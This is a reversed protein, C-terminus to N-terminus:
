PFHVVRPNLWVGRSTMADAVDIAVQIHFIVGETEQAGGLDLDIETWGGSMLVLPQPDLILQGSMVSEGYIKGVITDKVFAEPPFLLTARFRPKVADALFMTYVGDVFSAPGQAPFVSIGSIKKAQFLLTTQSVSTPPAPLLQCAYTKSIDSWAIEKCLEYLDYLVTEQEPDGTSSGSSGSSGSTDGTSTEDPGTTTTSTSTSTTSTSTSTSGGTTGSEDGTTNAASSGSSGEDSATGDPLSGTSNATDSDSGKLVFWPNDRSCGVLMLVVLGQGM